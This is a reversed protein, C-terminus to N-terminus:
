FARNKPATIASAIHLTLQNFITPDKRQGFLFPLRDIIFISCDSDDPVPNRKDTVVGIRYGSEFLLM